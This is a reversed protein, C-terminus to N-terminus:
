SRSSIINTAGTKPDPNRAQASQCTILDSEMALANASKSTRRKATRSNNIQQKTTAKKMQNSQDMPEINLIIIHYKVDSFIM